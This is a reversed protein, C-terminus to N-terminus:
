CACRNGRQDRCALMAAPNVVMKETEGPPADDREIQELLGHRAIRTAIRAPQERKKFWGFVEELGRDLEGTFNLFHRWCPLAAIVRDLPDPIEDLSRM